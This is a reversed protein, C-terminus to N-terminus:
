HFQLLTTQKDKPAMIYCTGDAAVFPTMPKVAPEREARFIHCRLRCCTLLAAASVSRFEVATLKEGAGNHTQPINITHAVQKNSHLQQPICLRLQTSGLFYLLTSHTQRSKSCIAMCSRQRNCSLSRRKGGM